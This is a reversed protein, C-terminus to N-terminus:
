FYDEIRSRSTGDVQRGALLGDTTNVAIEPPPGSGKDERELRILFSDYRELLFKGASYSYGGIVNV